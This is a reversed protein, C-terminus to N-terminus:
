AAAKKPKAKATAKKAATSGGISALLLSELDGTPQATAAVAPAEIAKGALAAEVLKEREPTVEDRYEDLKAADVAEADVLTKFLGVTKEDIEIGDFAHRANDLAEYADAFGLTNVVLGGDSAYVVFPRQKTRLTLKGIGAKGTDTLGRALLALARAGATGADKGPLIFYCGEAREFPVDSLPMFGDVVLSEIEFSKDIQKITEAPVEHFQDGNWIGRACATRSGIVDYAIEGTATDVREVAYVQKVPEGNPSALKFGVENAEKAKQLRIPASVLGFSLTTSKVAM